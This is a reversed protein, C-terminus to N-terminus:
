EAHFEHFPHYEIEELLHDAASIPRGCPLIGSATTWPVTVSLCVAFKHM